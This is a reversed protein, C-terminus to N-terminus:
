KLAGLFLRIVRWQVRSLVSPCMHGVACGATFPCMHGVVCGSPNLIVYLILVICLCVSWSWVPRLKPRISRPRILKLTFLVRVGDCRDVNDLNRVVFQCLKPRIPKPCLPNLVVWSAQSKLRTMAHRLNHRWVRWLTVYIHRWRDLM